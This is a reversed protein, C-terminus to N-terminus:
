LQTNNRYFDGRQVRLLNLDGPIFMQAPIQGQPIVPGKEKLSINSAINMKLFFIIDAIGSRQGAILSREAGNDQVIESIKVHVCLTM